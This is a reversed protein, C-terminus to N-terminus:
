DLIHSSVLEAILERISDETPDVTKLGAGTLVVSEIKKVRTPSGNGGVREMDCDVDAAAWETILCGQRSLAEIQPGTITAVAEPSPEAGEAELQKRARSSLESPTSAGKYQMILKARPPRPTNAMDTVTLLVPLPCRITEFGGEIGRRVTINGDEITRIEDVYAIQPLGLKEATQPGVQATDGDIAQRGCLVIDVEGAKRVAQSLAYSTALTDSAAFARDTLLVVEDAGRYLSERLVETAGPPGMTIVTIHGGFRDRIELAAELAHLDDPNFIAPLAARNVTGDEKMAEGTLNKTDPVQKVLVACRYGM